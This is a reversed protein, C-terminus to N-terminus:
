RFFIWFCRILCMYCKKFADKSNELNQKKTIIPLRIPLIVNEASVIKELPEHFNLSDKQDQIKKDELKKKLDLIMKNLNEIRKKLTEHSDALSSERCFNRQCNVCKHTLWKTWNFVTFFHGSPWRLPFNEPRITVGQFTM